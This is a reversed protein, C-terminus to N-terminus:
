GEYQLGARSIIDRAIDDGTRRDAPKKIYKCYEDYHTQM